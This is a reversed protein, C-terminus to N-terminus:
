ETKAKFSVHGSEVDISFVVRDTGAKEKMAETREVVLRHFKAFSLDKASEGCARKALMLADYVGKITKVDHQVDSCAFTSPKFPTEKERADREARQVTFADRGEERGKMTRRWVERFSSYRTALSNFHFRQAFNLSRDDGLRKLQSEVRLKTDYPPRKSGGSFFVDYEVKLRRIDEELRALRDEISVFETGSTKQRGRREAALRALKNNNLAL